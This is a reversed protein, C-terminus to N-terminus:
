INSLDGLNNYFNTLLHHLSLDLFVFIKGTSSKTSIKNHSLPNCVVEKQPLWHLILVQFSKLFPNDVKIQLHKNSAPIDM